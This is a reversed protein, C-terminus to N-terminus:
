KRPLSSTFDLCIELWFDLNKRTKIGEPYIYMLGKLPRGTFDMPDAYKRKIYTEYNDKGVRVMLKEDVIGFCMNGYHLFCLGGFMKRETIGEKNLVSKRIREALKQSYVM